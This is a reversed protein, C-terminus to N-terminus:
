RSAPARPGSPWSGTLSFLERGSAAEWVKATQDWSGSVIRQGNPSFAVSTVEELHGGLKKFPLHTQRQWYYWEFGRNPSEQTENLLQQLRGLNSQEWAQQALNMQAVYLFRQAKTKEIDAQRRQEKEAQQASVAALRQKMEANRAWRAELAQWGSVLIGIV